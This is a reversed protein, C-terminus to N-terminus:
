SRGRIVLRVHQRHSRRHDVQRGRRKPEGGSDGTSEGLFDHGSTLLQWNQVPTAVHGGLPGTSREHIRDTCRGCCRGSERDSSGNSSPDYSPDACRGGGRGHRPFCQLGTNRDNGTVCSRVDVRAVARTAVREYVRAPGRVHRHVYASESCAGPVFVYSAEPRSGHRPVYHVVPHWQTCRWTGRLRIAIRQRIRPPPRVAIRDM